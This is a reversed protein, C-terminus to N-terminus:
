RVMSLVNYPHSTGAVVRVLFRWLAFTRKARLMRRLHRGIRRMTRQIVHLRQLLREAVLSYQLSHFCPQADIIHIIRRFLFRVTHRFSHNRIGSGRSRNLALARLAFFFVFFKLHLSLLRRRDLRRSNRGDHPLNEAQRSLREIAIRPTKHFAPKSM